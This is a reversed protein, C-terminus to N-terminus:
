QPSDDKIRAKHLRAVVASSFIKTTATGGLDPTRIRDHNLTDDIAQRLHLASERQGIHDLLMAGALLLATPNAIGQGAIDPASGHVAEFLAADRGINAGPALGLGGTLGATLDSLIDGFLNTSVLVDFREPAMVLKMACADVIMEEMVFRGAYDSAYLRRATDLFIGSLAKLVNAKHVVTVKRRGHAVAYDFAFRLIRTCGARSNACIAHAIGQPDDGVSEYWERSAYLGETNERVVVLDLQGFRNDPLLTHTPRLNAFLDFHERLRVLPSRFGSGLPTEVPGKIALRTCEISALTAPPLPDGVTEYAGKGIAQAEWVLPHDFAAFVSLFAETIEPGIGDGALLTVPISSTNHLAPM